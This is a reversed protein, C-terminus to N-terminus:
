RTKLPTKIRMKQGWRLTEDPREREVAAMAHLATRFLRRRGQEDVWVATQRRHIPRTPGAAVSWGGRGKAVEVTACGDMDGFSAKGIVTFFVLEREM